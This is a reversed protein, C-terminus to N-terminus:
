INYSGILYLNEESQECQQVVFRIELGVQLRGKKQFVLGSQVM